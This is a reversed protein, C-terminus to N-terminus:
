HTICVKLPLIFDTVVTCGTEKQQCPAANSLKEYTLGEGIEYVKRFVAESQTYQVDSYLSVNEPKSEKLKITQKNKCKCTCGPM